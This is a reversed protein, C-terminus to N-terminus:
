CFSFISALRSLCKMIVTKLCTGWGFDLMLILIFGNEVAASPTESVCVALEIQLDYLCITSYGLFNNLCSSYGPCNNLCFSYGPHNDLCRSQTSLSHGNELSKMRADSRGTCNGRWLLWINYTGTRCVESSLTHMSSTTLQSLEDKELRAKSIMLCTWMKTRRLLDPQIESKNQATSKDRDRRCKVRQNFFEHLKM